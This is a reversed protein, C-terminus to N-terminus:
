GSGKGRTQNVWKSGMGDRETFSIRGNERERKESGSEKRMGSPIRIGTSNSKRGSVVERPSEALVTCVAVKRPTGKTSPDRRTRRLGTEDVWM